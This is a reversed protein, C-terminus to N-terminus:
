KVSGSLGAQRLRAKMTVRKKSKQKAELEKLVDEVQTKRTSVAEAVGRQSVTRGEAVTAIRKDTTREGSMFPMILVYAIGGVSIAAM